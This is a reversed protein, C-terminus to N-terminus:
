LRLEMCRKHATKKSQRLLRQGSIGFLDIKMDEDNLRTRVSPKSLCKRCILGSMDSMRAGHSARLPFEGKGGCAKCAHHSHLARWPFSTPRAAKGRPLRPPKWHQKNCAAQFVPEAVVALQKCLTSVALLESVTLHELIRQQVNDPLALLRFHNAAPRTGRPSRKGKASHCEADRKTLENSGHLAALQLAAAQSLGLQPHGVEAFLVSAAAAVPLTDAPLCDAETHRTTM